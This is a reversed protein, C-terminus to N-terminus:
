RTNEWGFLQTIRVLHQPHETSTHQKLGFSEFYSIAALDRATEEPSSGMQFEGTPIVVM